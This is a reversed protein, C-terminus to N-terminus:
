ESVSKAGALAQRVDVHVSRPGEKYMKRHKDDTVYLNINRGVDDVVINVDNVRGCIWAIFPSTTYRRYGRLRTPQFMSLNYPCTVSKTDTTLNRAVSIDIEGISSLLEGM